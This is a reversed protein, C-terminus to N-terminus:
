EGAVQANGFFSSVGAWITIPEFDKIPDYPLPKLHPTIVLANTSMLLTYGDASANHAATTAVIGDAGPRNEVVM